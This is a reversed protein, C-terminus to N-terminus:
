LQRVLTVAELALDELERLEARIRVDSVKSQLLGSKLTIGTLVNNLKDRAAGEATDPVVSPAVDNM